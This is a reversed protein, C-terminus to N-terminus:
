SAGRIVRKVPQRTHLRELEALADSFQLRTVKFQGFDKTDIGIRPVQSEDAYELVVTVYAKSM